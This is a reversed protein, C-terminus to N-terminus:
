WRSPLMIDILVFCLRNGFTDAWRIKPLLVSLLEAQGILQNEDGRAWWRVLPPGVARGFYHPGGEPRLPDFLVAGITVLQGDESDECAGDVFLLLPPERKATIERPRLSWLMNALWQLSPVARARLEPSGKTSDAVRRLAHLAPAGFKGFM